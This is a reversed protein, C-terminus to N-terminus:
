CIKNSESEDYRVDIVLKEVNNLYNLVEMSYNNTSKHFPKFATVLVKM